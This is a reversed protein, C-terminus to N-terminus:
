FILFRLFKIIINIPIKFFCKKVYIYIFSIAADSRIFNNQKTFSVKCETWTEELGFEGSNKAITDQPSVFLLM